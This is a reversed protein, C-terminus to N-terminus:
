EIKVFVRVLVSVYVCVCVSNCVLGIWLYQMGKMSESMQATKDGKRVCCVPSGTDRMKLEERGYFYQVVSRVTSVYLLTHINTYLNWRISVDGYRRLMTASFMDFYISAYIVFFFLHFFIYPISSRFFFIHVMMSKLIFLLRISFSTTHTSCKM